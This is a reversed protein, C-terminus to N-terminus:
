PVVLTAKETVVIPEEEGVTQVTFVIPNAGQRADEREVRLRVPVTRQSAPGVQVPQRESEFEIEELGSASIRFERARESTNM